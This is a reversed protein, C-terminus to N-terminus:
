RIEKSSSPRPIYSLISRQRTLISTGLNVILTVNKVQKSMHRAIRQLRRKSSIQLLQVQLEETSGPPPPLPTPSAYQVSQTEENFATELSKELPITAHPKKTLVPKWPPVNHNNPKVEFANQPKLVNAHRLSQDLNSRAKKTPAASQQDASASKRKIAGTYEDLCTDAKELLNDVIDVIRSWHVDVDDADELSPAAADTGKTASQLLSTTLALLRSSADDLEEAIAPNSTRQFDLDEATIQNALRTTSVLASQINQQLTKFNQSSEM